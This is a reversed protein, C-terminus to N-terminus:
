SMDLFPSLRIHVHHNFGWSYLYLLLWPSLPHTEGNVQAVIHRTGDGRTSEQAHSRSEGFEVSRQIGDRFKCHQTATM